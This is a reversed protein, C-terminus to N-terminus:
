APPPTGFCHTHVRQCYPTLNPKAAAHAKIPSDIPVWLLNALFAHLTADITSPRDGHFWPKDGLQDAVADIDRCGLAMMEDRSHRGMGHGMLQRRLGRRALAPVLLRMPLPMAGFFTERTRRWGEPEFWRTHVVAWYLHEELLRTFALSTARQADSLGADPDVGHTRVLHEIIFGSDAIRTGDDEIFPLKGKPARMVLGRNDTEYPLGALRLWTEIKMCFPSANPLGFGPPFQYLRIM